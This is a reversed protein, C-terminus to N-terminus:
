GQPWSTMKVLEGPAAFSASLWKTEIAGAATLTTSGVVTPSNVIYTGLGGAGTVPATITTGATVGTGTLTQGNVLTGSGVATVTMVGHAETITTSAVAQGPVSVQYTGIGNPTGSLQAVVSTGAAVGTGTLTGGVQISGSGVATVNMVNDTITGTVSGSGAAISGTVSAGAPPAGTAGFTVLGTGFQAYAKQNPVVETTGSNLVWFDGERHLTVIMGRLITMSTEGLFNTILAGWNSMRGAFGAPPGSGTNSAQTYTSDLWAFRGLTLGNPGAVLQGPGALVSARPDASAFDGVVAPAPQINIQQQFGPM